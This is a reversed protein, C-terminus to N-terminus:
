CGDYEKAKAWDDVELLMDRDGLEPFCPVVPLSAVPVELNLQDQVAQTAAAAGLFFGRYVAKQVATIMALVDNESPFPDDLREKLEAVVQTAAEPIREAVYMNDM